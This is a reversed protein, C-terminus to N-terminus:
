SNPAVLKDKLTITREVPRINKAVIKYKIPKELEPAELPHRVEFFLHRLDSESLEQLAVLGAPMRMSM